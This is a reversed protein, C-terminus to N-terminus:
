ITVRLLWRYSGMPSDANANEISAGATYTWVDTQSSLEARCNISLEGKM